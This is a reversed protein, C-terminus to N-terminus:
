GLYAAQVEPDARIEDPTGTAIRRGLHLVTIRQCLAMVFGVDHEVLLAGCSGQSLHTRLVEAMLETEREGLGSTPEDLLLVTPDGILARALEVMRAAGIPLSGAPLDRLSDLHCEALMQEVREDDARASRRRGAAGLLDVVVGGRQGDGELAARLNDAVSLAGFVQQRQFTRRLGHRARWAASRGTVDEGALRIRGSSPRRIGSIVDFLTTKGAGNPGILGHIEGARLDLDVDELAVVGGFRMTIADVGLAPAALGPRGDPAEVADAPSTDPSM